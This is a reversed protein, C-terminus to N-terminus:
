HLAVGHGMVITCHGSLESQVTSNVEHIVYVVMM